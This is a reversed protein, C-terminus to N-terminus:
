ARVVRKLRRLDAVLNPIMVGSVGATAGHDIKCRTQYYRKVLAYDATGRDLLLAIRNMFPTRDLRNLDIADWLRRHGWRPDALRRKVLRTVERNVHDEFQAFMLAFYAFDNLEQLRRWKEISRSTRAAAARLVLM